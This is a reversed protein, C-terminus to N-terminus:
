PEDSVLRATWGAPHLDADSSAFQHSASPELGAGRAHRSTSCGSGLAVVFLLAVVASISLHRM